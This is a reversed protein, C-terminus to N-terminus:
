VVSKRDLSLGGEGFETDMKEFAAKEEDIVHYVEYADNGSLGDMEDDPNVANEITVQVDEGPEIVNGDVDLISIDYGSLCDFAVHGKGVVEADYISTAYLMLDESDLAAVRLSSGEPIVEAFGTVTVRVGDYDTALIIMDGEIRNGSLTSVGDLNAGSLTPVTEKRSEEWAETTAANGSLTDPVQGTETERTQELVEPWEAEGALEMGTELNGSSLSGRFIDAGVPVPGFAALLVTAAALFVAMSRKIKDRM